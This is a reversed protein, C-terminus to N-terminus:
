KEKFMLRLALFSLVLSLVGFGFQEFAESSAFNGLTNLLFYFAMFGLLMRVMGSPVNWTLYDLRVAVIVAMFLTVGFSVAELASKDELGSEEGGWVISDPLVGFIILVHFVALLLLLALLLKGAFAFPLWGFFSRKEKM